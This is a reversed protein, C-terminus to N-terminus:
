YTLPTLLGLSKPRSSQSISFITGKRSQDMFLDVTNKSYTTSNNSLIAKMIDMNKINQTEM